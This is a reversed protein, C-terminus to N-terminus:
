TSKRREEAGRLGLSVHGGHGVHWGSGTQVQGGVGVRVHGVHGGTTVQGVVGGVVGGVVRGGEGPLVFVSMGNRWAIIVTHWMTAYDFKYFHPALNSDDMFDRAFTKIVGVKQTIM